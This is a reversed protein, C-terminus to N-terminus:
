KNEEETFSYTGWPAAYRGCAEQLTVLVSRLLVFFLAIFIRCEGPGGIKSGM